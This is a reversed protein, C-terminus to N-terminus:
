SKRPHTRFPKSLSPDSTHGGSDRCYKPRIASAKWDSTNSRIQLLKSSPESFHAATTTGSTFGDSFVLDKILGSLSTM